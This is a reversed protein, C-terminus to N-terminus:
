KNEWYDLINMETVGIDRVYKEDFPKISESVDERRTEETVELAFIVESANGGCLVIKEFEIGSEVIESVTDECVSVFDDRDEESVLIDFGVVYRVRDMYDHLESEPTLIEGKDFAIDAATINFGWTAGSVVNALKQKAVFLMKEEYHNRVDDNFNKGASVYCEDADGYIGGEDEFSVYTRYEGRMAEYSTYKKDVKEGYNAAIYGTNEADNMVFSVVNGCLVLSLVCSLVLSLIACAICKRKVDNKATKKSAKFFRVAYVGASCLLCAVLCYMIAEAVSRGSVLYTCLTMVGSLSASTSMSVGILYSVAGGALFLPITRLVGSSPTFAAACLFLLLGSLFMRLTPNIDKIDKFKM